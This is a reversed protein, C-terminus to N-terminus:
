PTPTRFWLSGSAAISINYTGQRPASQNMTLIDGSIDFHANDPYDSISGLSYSPGQATLIANQASIEATYTGDENIETSNLQVYWLGLNQSFASAGNFISGMNTASSVDWGSIDSNFASAGNFIFHM